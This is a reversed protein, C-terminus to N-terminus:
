NLTIYHEFVGYFKLNEVIEDALAIDSIPGFRVRYVMNGNVSAESIMLLTEGIPGLKERMKVANALETYAGVQIYFGSLNFAASTNVSLDPNEVPAARRSYNNSNVSRVEVLGTGNKLIDLKAAATYSLDIVRNEHFPGRDNVKIVVRKGNEMNTVEVYTPLPLSKHAATMAYMDYTEGSSTRRGHFKEGYWSAIGREIFNEGSNLVYYRKGNVVYSTPNGYKSKAENKPVADPIRSVDISGPRPGRDRGVQVISSCSNLLLFITLLLLWRVLTRLFQKSYHM